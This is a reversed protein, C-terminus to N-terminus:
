AAVSEGEMVVISNSEGMMVKITVTTAKKLTLTKQILLLGDKEFKVLVEGEALQKLAFKGKADTLVIKSEKVNVSVSVGAVPTNNKDLLVTGKVGSSGGKGGIKKLYTLVFMRRTETNNVFVRKGDKLMIMMDGYCTNNAKIKDSSDAINVPDAESYETALSNFNVGGERFLAAFTDPMNQNEMLKEKNNEIFRQGKTILEAVAAWNDSSAKAYNTLGAMEIMSSWKDKAFASEIYTKLTQCNALVIKQAAVLTVRINNREKIKENGSLLAEAKDIQALKERVYEDTYIKKFGFFAAINKRCFGWALRLVIYLLSQSMAYNPKTLSSM